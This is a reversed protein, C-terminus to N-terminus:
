NHAFVGSWVVVCVVCVWVWFVGCWEVGVSMVFTSVDVLYCVSGHCRVYQKRALTSNSIAWVSGPFGCWYQPVDHWYCWYSGKWLGLEESASVFPYDAVDKGYIYLASSSVLWGRTSGTSVHSPPILVQVQCSHLLVSWFSWFQFWVFLQTSMWRFAFVPRSM